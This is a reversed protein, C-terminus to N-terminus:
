LRAGHTPLRTAARFLVAFPADKACHASEIRFRCRAGFQNSVAVIRASRVFRKTQPETASSPGDSPTRVLVAHSIRALVIASKPNPIECKSQM